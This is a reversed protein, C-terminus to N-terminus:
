SGRRARCVCGGRQRELVENECAGGCAALELLHGPEAFAGGARQQGVEDFGAENGAGTVNRRHAKGERKIGQLEQQRLKIGFCRNAFVSQALSRPM